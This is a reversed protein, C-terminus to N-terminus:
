ACRTGDWAAPLGLLQRTAEKEEACAELVGPTQLRWVHTTSASLGEAPPRCASAPAILPRLCPRHPPALHLALHLPSTCPRPYPPTCPRLSRLVQLPQVDQPLVHLDCGRPGPWGRHPLEDRDQGVACQRGPSGDEARRLNSGARSLRPRIRPPTSPNSHPTSPRPPPCPRVLLDMVRLAAGDDADAAGPTRSTGSRRTVFARALLNYFHKVEAQMEVDGVAKKQKKKKATPGPPGAPM